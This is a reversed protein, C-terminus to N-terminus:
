ISMETMATIDFTSRYFLKLFSFRKQQQQSMKATLVTSLFIGCYFSQTTTNVSGEPRTNKCKENCWIIYFFDIFLHHRLDTDANM